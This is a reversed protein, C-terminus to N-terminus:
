VRHQRLLVFQHLAFRVGDTSANEVVVFVQLAGMSVDDYSTQTLGDDVYLNVNGIQAGALSAGLVIAVPLATRLIHRM